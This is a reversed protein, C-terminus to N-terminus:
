ELVARQVSAPKKKRRKKRKPPPKVDGWKARRDKEHIARNFFVGEKAPSHAEAALKKMMQLVGPHKGAVNKKESIDKSLDYLEWNPSRRPETTAIGASKM